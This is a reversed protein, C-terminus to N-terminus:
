NPPPSLGDYDKITQNVGAGLLYVTNNMDGGYYLLSLSNM